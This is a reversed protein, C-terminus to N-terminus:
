IMRSKTHLYCVVVAFIKRLKEYVTNWHAHSVWEEERMEPPWDRTQERASQKLVEGLRGLVYVAEVLNTYTSEYVYSPTAFPTQVGTDPHYRMEVLSRQVRACVSVGEKEPADEKTRYKPPEVRHEFVCPVKNMCHRMEKNMCYQPKSVRELFEHAPGLRLRKSIAGSQTKKRKKKKDSEKEEEEEEEDDDHEEDRIASQDDFKRAGQKLVWSNVFSKTRAMCANWEQVNPPDAHKRLAYLYKVCGKWLTADFLGQENLLEELQSSTIVSM